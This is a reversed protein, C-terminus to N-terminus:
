RTRAQHVDKLVRRVRRETSMPRKSNSTTAGSTAPAYRVVHFKQAQRAPGVGAAAGRHLGVGNCGGHSAHTQRKEVPISNEDQPAQGNQCEAAIEELLASVYGAQTHTGGQHSSTGRGDTDQGQSAVRPQDSTASRINSIQRSLRLVKSAGGLNTGPILKRSSKPHCQPDAASSESVQASPVSPLMPVHGLDTDPSCYLAAEQQDLKASRAAQHQQQVFRSILKAGMSGARHSSAQGACKNMQDASAQWRLLGPFHCGPVVSLFM